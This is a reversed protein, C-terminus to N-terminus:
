IRRDLAGSIAFGRGQGIHCIECSEGSFCERELCADMADITEAARPRADRCSDACRDEDVQEHCGRLCEDLARCESDERCALDHEQCATRVANQVCQALDADSPPPAEAPKPRCGVLVLVSCWGFARRSRSRWWGNTTMMRASYTRRPCDSGWRRIGYRVGGGVGLDTTERNRAHSARVGTLGSEAGIAPYRGSRSAHAPFM